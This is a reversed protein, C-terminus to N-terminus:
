GLICLTFNMDAAAVSIHAFIAQGSKRQSVYVGGALIAAASATLPTLLLGSFATIRADNVVTSTGGNTLTLPLTVNLKGSIARNVTDVIRRVWAISAVDTSGAANAPGLPAAPYGPTTVM